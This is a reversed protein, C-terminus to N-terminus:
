KFLNGHAHLHCSITVRSLPNTLWIHNTTSHLIHISARRATGLFTGYLEHDQQNFITRLCDISLSKRLIKWKQTDEQIQLQNIHWLNFLDYRGPRVEWGETGREPYMRELRQKEQEKERIKAPICLVHVSLSPHGCKRLHLFLDANKFYLSLIFYNRRQM